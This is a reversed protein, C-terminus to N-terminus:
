IPSQLAVRPAGPYVPMNYPIRSGQPFPESEHAKFFGRSADHVYPCRRYNCCHIPKPFPGSPTKIWHTAAAMSIKHVPCKPADQM